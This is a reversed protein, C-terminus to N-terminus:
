SPFSVKGAERDKWDKVERKIKRGNKRKGDDWGTAGEKAKKTICDLGLLVYERFSVWSM